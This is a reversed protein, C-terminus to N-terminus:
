VGLDNVLHYGKALLYSFARQWRHSVWRTSGNEYVVAAKESLVVAALQGGKEFVISEVQM